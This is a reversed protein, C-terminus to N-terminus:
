VRTPYSLFCAAGEVEHLMDHADNFVDFPSGVCALASLASLGAAFAPSSPM